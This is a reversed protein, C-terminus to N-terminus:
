ANCNRKDKDQVVLRPSPRGDETVACRRLEVAARDALVIGEVYRVLLPLDSERFHDTDTATVLDVFMRREAKSLSRPPVLQPEKGDVRLVDLSAASKRGRQKM